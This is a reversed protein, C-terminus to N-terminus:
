TRVLLNLKDSFKYTGSVNGLIHHKNMKNLMEYLIAYPNDPGPNYPKHQQVHEKGPEWIPWYWEPNVNPTTGAMLFYMITQNNYGAAPLNDSKKNSYNFRGSL